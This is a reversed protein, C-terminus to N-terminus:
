SVTLTASQSYVTAAGTASASARYRTGSDATTLGTLSLTSSTAGTIDTWTTGADFSRQWQYSVSAGSAIAASATFTATGQSLSSRAMTSIGAVLLTTGDGASSLMASSSPLTGQSWSTGNSSVLVDTSANSSTIVFFSGCRRVRSWSGSVPLSRATWSIGDASTYATNGSEPLLVFVGSGYAVSVYQGSAPLTRNSWNMGDSSTMYTTFTTTYTSGSLTYGNLLTSVFLGNGFAIDTVPGRYGLASSYQRQTWSAGDSSTHFYFVNPTNEGSTGAGHYRMVAVYLGYGVAVSTFDGYAPASSDASQWSSGNTSYVIAPSNGTGSGKGVAVYNGSSKYALEHAEHGSPLSSITWASLNTSTAINGNALAFWTGNQYSVGTLTLNAPANQATWSLLSVGATNSQPQTGFALSYLLQGVYDGGDISDNATIGGTSSLTLTSGNATINVNTGAALTLAGTLNNLGTVYNHGHSIASYNASLGSVLTTNTPFNAPTGSLNAYAFSTPLNHVHDARASLNSTGASATGLNAPTGDSLTIVTGNAGNSGSTGPDGRPITLDLTVNAGSNTATATVSASSGAAGTVVNGIAFSPTVGNAGRPIGFALTLNSGSVNSTVTANSGSALTTTNGVSVLTAPGAPIGLDISAAYSTGVNKAYAASGSALTTTSNITLTGSVVTANGPSITGLSVNVAGGNGVTANVTSGSSVAVNAAGANTVNVSIDM